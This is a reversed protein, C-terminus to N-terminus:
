AKSAAVNTRKTPPISRLIPSRCLRNRQRWEAWRSDGTMSVTQEIRRYELYEPPVNHMAGARYVGDEALFLQGFKAQCIRTANELIAEFVPQLDGSSSSIVRLVESTATQQKLSETLDTTRQRLENLLRTNEIAIVAQAAFNKVLEIQKDSFQRIEKRYIAFAGVFQTEKLMPVLLLTRAGAVDVLKSFEPDGAIYCRETRVDAVHIVEKSQIIRVLPVDPHLDRALFPRQRAETYAQSAQYLAATRFAGDDYLFLNGFEAECLRTAKELMARFVPELEGPSSNIVRLVDATATQQELSQKLESLLRANEIAIAAQEAFTKLLAIHKEEFPRVEDRRVLITGLARDERLLPVGLITRHGWKLAFQQGLPFEEGANQLDHVHVPARDLVARGMVSTRVLPLAEAGTPRALEGYWARNRFM